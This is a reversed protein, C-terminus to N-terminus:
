LMLGFAVHIDLLLCRWSNYRKRSCLCDEPIQPKKGNVTKLIMYFFLTGFSDPCKNFDNILQQVIVTTNKEPKCFLNIGLTLQHFGASDFKVNGLLQSYTYSLM